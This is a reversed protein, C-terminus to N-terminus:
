IAGGITEDESIADLAGYGVIPVAMTPVGKKRVAERFEPTIKFGTSGFPLTGYQVNDGAFYPPELNVEEIPINKDFKGLVKKLRNQVDRNYFNITGEKPNTTGGVKGIAGIDRPFTLYDINPDNVADLISQNIAQDVWKNQSSMLPGSSAGEPISDVARGLKIQLSTMNDTLDLVEERVNNFKNRFDNTLWDVPNDLMYESVIHQASNSTSWNSGRFPQTRIWANVLQEQAETMEGSLPIEGFDANNMDAPFADQLLNKILGQNESKLKKNLDYISAEYGLRARDSDPMGDYLMRQAIEKQSMLNQIENRVLTADALKLTDAYSSLVDGEGVKQQPDSQIEGIYRATGGGEVPYDAQRTHFITGYNSDGFHSSGAVQDIPIRGTPDRYQFLKETYDSGGEPFYSSYQTEGEALGPSDIRYGALFGPPDMRFEEELDTRVGDELYKNLGDEGGYIHTLVEENLADDRLNANDIEKNPVFFKVSGDENIFYYEATETLDKFEDVTKGSKAAMEPIDSYNILGPDGYLSRFDFDYNSDEYVSDRLLGRLEEVRESVMPGDEMAESVADMVDIQEANGGLVGEAQRVEPVLRPDNAELYDVIEQKTTKQGQFFEDAGSWEMEDAKAGNKIMMARLQEYSGKDQTIEKAAKLSPSFLEALAGIKNGLADVADGALDVAAEAGRGVGKIFPALGM